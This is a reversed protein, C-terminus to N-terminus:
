ELEQACHAVAGDRGVALVGELALDELAADEPLAIEDHVRGRAYLADEEVVGAVVDFAADRAAEELRAETAPQKRALALIPPPLSADYRGSEIM